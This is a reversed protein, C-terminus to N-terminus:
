DLTSGQLNFDFYQNLLRIASVTKTQGEPKKGDVGFLPNEADNIKSVNGYAWTSSQGPVLCGRINKVLLLKGAHITLPLSYKAHSNLCFGLEASSNDDCIRNIVIPKKVTAQINDWCRDIEGSFARVSLLASVCVVRKWKSM